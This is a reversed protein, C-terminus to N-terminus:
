GPFMAGAAPGGMAMGGPMGGAMPPPAPPLTMGPPQPENSAMTPDPMAPIKDLAGLAKVVAQGEESASGLLPLAHELAARAALVAVRARAVMGAQVLGVPAAPSAPAGLTPGGPPPGAM